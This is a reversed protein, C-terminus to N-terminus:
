RKEIRHSMILNVLDNCGKMGQYTNCFRSSSQPPRRAAHPLRRQNICAIADPAPFDGNLLLLRRMARELRSKRKM